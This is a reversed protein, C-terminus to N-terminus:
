SLQLKGATGSIKVMYIWMALAVGGSDRPLTVLLGYRYSRDVTASVTITTTRVTNWNANVHDDTEPSSVTAADAASGDQWRVLTFTAKTTLDNVVGKTKISVSSITAGDPLPEFELICWKGTGWTGGDITLFAPTAFLDSPYEIADPAGYKGSEDAGFTRTAASVRVAYRSWSRATNLVPWSSAGVLKLTSIYTDGQLTVTSNAVGLIYSDEELSIAGPGGNATSMLTVAGRVNTTGNLNVTSGSASSFAAGSSLAIVGTNEVSLTGGPNGLGGGNNKLTLTGYVDLDANKNIQVLTGTQATLTAVNTLVELRIDGSTGDAKLLAGNKLRIEGTSEVNLRASAALSHGTGTFEFGAGGVTIFAGPAWTGGDDGNIAKFSQDWLLTYEVSDPVHGDPIPDTHGVFYVFHAM